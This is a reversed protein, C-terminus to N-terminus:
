AILLTSHLTQLVETLIAFTVISSNFIALSDVLSWALELILMKAFQMKQQAFEGKLAHITVSLPYFMKIKTSVLSHYTSM